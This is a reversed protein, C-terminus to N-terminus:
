GAKSATQYESRLYHVLPNHQDARVKWVFGRSPRGLHTRRYQAADFGRSPAIDQKVGAQLYHAFPDRNPGLDNGFREMYWTVDFLPNPSYVQKRRNTLYHGLAVQDAAVGYETRYWGPDFFAVPRRGAAEGALIYHTLPNVQLRGLQPNTQVYWEADFYINPRRGERWGYRCYHEAPDANAEQVDAANILYYNADVLRSARVGGLDPLDDSQASGLYHAIPDVGLAPDDRYPAILPVSFLDACPVFGGSRRNAVFHGFALRDAAVEYASRYWGADFRPHPKRGEREGDRIYHLLPDAAAAAVDPNEARYWDPDFYPNAWRGEASGYELFHRLGDVGAAAVDEYRRLYWATDFVGSETLVRADTMEAGTTAQV